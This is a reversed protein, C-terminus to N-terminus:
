ENIKECELKCCKKNKKGSGCRCLENRGVKTTTRMPVMRSFPIYPERPGYWELSDYDYNYPTGYVSNGLEIISAVRETM